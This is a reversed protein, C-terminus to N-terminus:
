ARSSSGTVGSGSGTQSQTSPAGTPRRVGAVFSETQSGTSPQCTAMSGSGMTPRHAHPGMSSATSALSSRVSAGGSTYGPPNSYGPRNDNSYPPPPNSTGDTARSGRDGPEGHLSAGTGSTTSSWASQMNGPGGSSATSTRNQNTQQNSSM